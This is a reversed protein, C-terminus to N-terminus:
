VPHDDVLARGIRALVERNDILLLPVRHLPQQGRVDLALSAPPDGILAQQHALDDVPCPSGNIAV